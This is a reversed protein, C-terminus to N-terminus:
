VAVDCIRGGEGAVLSTAWQSETVDRCNGKKKDLIPKPSLLANIEVDHKSNLCGRSERGTSAQQKRTDRRSCTNSEM